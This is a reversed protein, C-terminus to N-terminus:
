AAQSYPAYVPAEPQKTTSVVAPLPTYYAWAEELAKLAEAAKAQSKQTM